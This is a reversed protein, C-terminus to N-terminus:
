SKSSKQSYKLSNKIDHIRKKYCFGISYKHYVDFTHNQASQWTCYSFKEHYWTSLWYDICHVGSIRLIQARAQGKYLATKPQIWWFSKFTPWNRCMLSMGNGLLNTSTAHGLVCKIPRKANWLGANSAMKCITRYFLWYKLYRESIKLTSKQCCYQCDQM